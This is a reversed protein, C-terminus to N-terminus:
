EVCNKEIVIRLIIARCDEVAARKNRVVITDIINHQDHKLAESAKTFINDRRNEKELREIWGLVQEGTGIEYKRVEKKM